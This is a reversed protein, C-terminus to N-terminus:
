KSDHAQGGHNMLLQGKLETKTEESEKLTIDPEGAALHKM